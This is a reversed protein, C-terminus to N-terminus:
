CRKALVVELKIPPRTADQHPFEFRAVPHLDAPVENTGLPAFVPDRWNRAPLGPTGIKVQLINKDSLRELPDNSRLGFTLPGALHCVQTDQAHRCFALPIQAPINSGDPNVRWLTAFEWGHEEHDKQIWKDFDSQPVFKKDRVWFDLRLHLGEVKGLDFSNMWRYMGPAVEIRKPGQVRENAETLDGNGNRDVYLTEGDVVLWIRKKAQPGIALLAYYPQTKYRPQKVITRDIKMLDPFRATPATATV